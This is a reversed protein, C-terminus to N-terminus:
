NGTLVVQKSSLSPVEAVRHGAVCALRRRLDNQTEQLLRLGPLEPGWLEGTFDPPLRRPEAPSAQGRQGLQLTLCAAQGHGEQQLNTFLKFVCAGM